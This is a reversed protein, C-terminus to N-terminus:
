MVSQSESESEGERCSGGQGEQIVGEGGGGGGGGEEDGDGEWWRRVRVVRRVRRRGVWGICSVMVRVWVRVSLMQSSRERVASSTTVSLM